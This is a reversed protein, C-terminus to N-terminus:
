QTQYVKKVLSPYIFIYGVTYLSLRACHEVLRWVFLSRPERYFVTQLNRTSFWQNLSILNKNHANHM